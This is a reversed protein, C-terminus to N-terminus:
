SNSDVSINSISATRSSTLRLDADKKFVAFGQNVLEQAIDVDRDNNVDYLDVGPVPSGERKARTKERVCYGNMRSSLKKWQAVHALEEFKDVAEESWNEGNPEVKALYCEIAQFNLRLFDTRLEYVEKYPVFDTDGYDVYYLEAQPEKGNDAVVNLVEARYWKKDFRFVAAVLDGCEVNKLIHLDRNDQKGYYMTMEHVLKDLETAKPGVIQLWFRSPDIMSSVFVEFQSDTQGPIPSIREVRPNELPPKPSPSKAPLRPERKALTMEIHSQSMQCQEVVEEILSKAINIQEKTGKLIIRRTPEARGTDDVSVKAGSRRSIEVIQEGCRGIIRGVAMQPVWVDVSEMVPQNTIFEQILNQAIACAENSGRIVCIRVKNEDEEKFNIKANSEEQIAKINKEM